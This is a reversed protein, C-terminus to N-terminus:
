GFKTIQLYQDSDELRGIIIAGDYELWAHSLIANSDDKNVGIVLTPGYGNLAFVIKGALSRVLCTAGPVFDSVRDFLWVARDVTLNTPKCKLIYQASKNNAKQILSNFPINHLRVRFYLLWYLSQFCVMKENSELRFFNFLKM